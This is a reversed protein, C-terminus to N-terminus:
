PTPAALAAALDWVKVVGDISSSALRSGDRAIALRIVSHKHGDFVHVPEAQKMDYLAVLHRKNSGDVEIRREGIALFRGDPTSRAAWVIHQPSLPISFREQNGAIDWVVLKDDTAFILGSSDSTFISLKPEGDITCLETGAM